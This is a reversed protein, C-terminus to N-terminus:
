CRKASNCAAFGSIFNNGSDIVVCFKEWVDSKAKSSTNHVTKYKGIAIKM